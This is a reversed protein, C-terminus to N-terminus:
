KYRAQFIEKGSMKNLARILNSNFIVLKEIVVYMKDHILIELENDTISLNVLRSRAFLLLDLSIVERNLRISTRLAESLVERIAKLHILDERAQKLEM